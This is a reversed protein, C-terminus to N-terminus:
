KGRLWQKKFKDRKTRAKEDRESEHPGEVHIKEILQGNEDVGYKKKGSNRSYHGPKTDKSGKRDRTHKKAVTTGESYQDAGHNTRV